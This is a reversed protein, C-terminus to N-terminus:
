EGIIPLDHKSGWETWSGDYVKINKYELETAALALVCATVGSGCTFILAKDTAAINKFITNLKSSPLLIGNHLLSTFPMSKSSPIHGTRLGERPEKVLGDFRNQARADLILTESDHLKSHVDESNYFYSGEFVAKFDGLKYPSNDTSTIPFNSKEWAPLGGDLVVVNKHGMAKFLYWARASSYIGQNDYIVIMSNNNIGLKQASETFKKASPVTNPFLSTTDSFATKIDFFRAGKIHKTIPKKESSSITVKPISADLVVINETNLHQHLWAVSKINTRETLMM